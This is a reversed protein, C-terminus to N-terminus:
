FTSLLSCLAFLLSCLASILFQLLTRPLYIFHAEIGFTMLLDWVLQNAAQTSPYINFLHCSVVVNAWFTVVCMFFEGLIQIVAVPLQM